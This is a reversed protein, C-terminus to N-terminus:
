AAMSEVPTMGFDEDVPICIGAISNGIYDTFGVNGPCTVFQINKADQALTFIEDKQPDNEGYIVVLKKDPMKLFAEV